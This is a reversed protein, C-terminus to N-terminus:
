VLPLRRGGPPRPGTREAVLVGREELLVRLGSHELLTRAGAGADLVVVRAGPAVVRAAEELLRETGSGSLVVGRLTGSHFPLGPRTVMRSVRAEERAEQLEPAIAVVGLEPVLAALASAHRVVPGVLGVHGPGEGIGLLAAVRTTGEPDAAPPLPGAALAGRPPARLDAFGGVVPFRDRCNPCGFRGAIVRREVVRDALLILGFGPGCRPCSLRDALLLDV